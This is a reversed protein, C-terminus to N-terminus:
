RKQCDEIGSGGNLQQIGWDKYFRAHKDIVCYAKFIFLHLIWSMESVWKVEEEFSLVDEPNDKCNM